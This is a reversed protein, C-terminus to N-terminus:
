KKNLALWLQAVAEEPTDYGVLPTEINKGWARYGEFVADGFRAEGRKGGLALGGFEEGCAEILEPLTPVKTGSERDIFRTGKDFWGDSEPFGAEKLKKALEYNM